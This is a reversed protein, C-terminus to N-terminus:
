SKRLNALVIITIDDHQPAGAAFRSLAEKTVGLIRDSSADGHEFFIRKANESGFEQSQRNRAESLGDTYVMVKDNPRLDFAVDEYETEDMVGLPMGAGLEIELVANGGKRYVLVPSHGASSVQVKGAQSDIIMYLCTVFRGEFRGYLEKNLRNLVEHAFDYQNAFVRFLSITQAMILSAPVGKGSVDGIFVGVKNDKVTLIDYLDGAVFKAPQMFSSVTIGSFEKIDKPLFSKQIARAIDLEKELLQRKKTENFFRYATSGIYTLAIIFLPLFLDVWFGFFVFVTVAFIFYVSGLIISSCFARLPAFRLCIFLSLAFVLLNIFTNLFLGVPTIFRSTLISNLVSAQLGLMPYLNELPNPRIDSTGTATLGVFCVKDKLISLDLQPKIGQKEDTYAKLIEVYSLHRFTSSWTGPYNVMFSGEPLVPLSYNGGIVIRGRKYVASNLDLGLWDGAVKLALQPYLSGECKIFLPVKRAKGDPDIDANIYGVGVCSERFTDRLDAIVTSSKLPFSRGQPNELAVAMYVNGADKISKALVDDYVAPESFLVDFVVMRVGKEKLVDILSAHFDRSLPWEGLRKLTDDSIEVIVIDPSVKLVPRLKFRLDYSISEYNNFTRGWSFFFIMLVSASIVWIKLPITKLFKM